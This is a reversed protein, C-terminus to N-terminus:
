NPDVAFSGAAYGFKNGCKVILEKVLDASFINYSSLEYLFQLLTLPTNVAEYPYAKYLAIGDKEMIEIQEKEDNLIVQPKKTKTDTETNM